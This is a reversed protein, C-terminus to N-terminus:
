FCRTEMEEYYADTSKNKRFFLNTKKEKLKIPFINVLFNIDFAQFLVKTQM